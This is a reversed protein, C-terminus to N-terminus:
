SKESSCNTQFIVEVVAVDGIPAEELLDCISKYGVAVFVVQEVRSKYFEKLKNSRYTWYRVCNLLSQM